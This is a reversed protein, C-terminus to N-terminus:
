SSESQDTDHSAASSSVRGAQRGREVGSRYSSLGAGIAEPSRALPTMATAAQAPTRVGGPIYNAMPIRKPLGAQTMPGISPAAAAVARQWGTDAASHWEPRVSAADSPRTVITPMPFRARIPAAVRASPTDASTEPAEPQGVISSSAETTVAPEDHETDRDPPAQASEGSPEGAPEGSALVAPTAIPTEASPTALESESKAARKTKRKADSARPRKRKPTVSVGEDPKSAATEADTPASETPEPVTRPAPEAPVERFWESEISEFIALTIDTANEKEALEGYRWHKHGRPEETASAPRVLETSQDDDAAAPPPLSEHEQAGRQPPIADTSPEQESQVETDTETEPADDSVDLLTAPLTVTAVTGQPQTSALSVAVQHRGALKAVVHLGMMRSLQVNAAHPTALRENLETLQDAPMGIGRDRIEIVISGRSIRTQITVDTRPPSFTTANEALEAVLHVVDSVAHAAVAVPVVDGIKVRTYQEIEATAARLVDLLPATRTWRRGAEAGALVLLNEDNRRMRTVLHDLQFLESLRDPDRESHELKDILRILRDVLLQSRRALNVFTAAVSLRLQAQQVAIDIAERHVLDFALVVDDIEDTPRQDLRRDIVQTAAARVKAVKPGSSRAADVDRLQEVVDPLSRHAVELASTRLRSLPRAMSRAIRLAVWTSLAILALALLVVGVLYLLQRTREASSADSVDSNLQALVEDVQESKSAAASQWEEADLTLEGSEGARVAANEATLVGSLQAPGLRREVLSRDGPDAIDDFQALYAEQQQLSALFQRYGDADFGSSVIATYLLYAEQAGAEAYHAFLATSRLQDALDNQGIDDSEADITALVGAIISGYRQMAAPNDLERQTVDDRLSPLSRLGRQIGAAAATISSGSGADLDEIAEGMRAAASDTAAARDTFEADEVTLNGALVTAAAAREAQLARTLEIARADLAAIRHAQSASSLNGAFHAAAVGALLAIALMPILLALLLKARLPWRIRMRNTLARLPRRRHSRRAAPAGPRDSEFVSGAPAVSTADAPEPQPQSAADSTSDASRESDANGGNGADSTSHPQTVVDFSLATSRSSYRRTKPM